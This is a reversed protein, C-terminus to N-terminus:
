SPTRINGSSARARMSLVTESWRCKTLNNMKQKLFDDPMCIFEEAWLINAEMRHSLSQITTLQDKGQCANAESCKHHYPPRPESKQGCSLYTNARISWATASYKLHLRVPGQYVTKLIRENAEWTTVALKMLKAFKCMTKAEHLTHSVTRGETLHSQLYSAEDDERLHKKTKSLARARQSTSPTFLTTSSTDKTSPSVGSKQGFM